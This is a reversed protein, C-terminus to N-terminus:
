AADRYRSHVCSGARHPFHRGECHCLVRRHERKTTRYWDVRWTHSGCPCPPTRRMQMPQRRFTARHECHSCRCRYRRFRMRAALRKYEAKRM